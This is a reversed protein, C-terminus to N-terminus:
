WGPLVARLLVWDEGATLPNRTPNYFQPTACESRLHCQQLWLIRRSPNRNRTHLHPAARSQELGEKMDINTGVLQEHEHGMDEVFASLMNKRICSALPIAPTYSQRRSPQVAAVRQTASHPEHSSFYTQNTRRDSFRHATSLIFINIDLVM